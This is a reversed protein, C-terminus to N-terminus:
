TRTVAPQAVVVAASLAILALLAFVFKGKMM